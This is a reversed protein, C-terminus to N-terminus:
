KEQHRYSTNSLENQRFLQILEIITPYVEAELIDKETKSFKSLVFDSETQLSRLENNTGIRLRWFSSGLHKIISELGKNGGDSGEQRVRIVGFPLDLDDHIVLLDQSADLHYYRIIKQAVEGTLNYFTHPKVFMIEEQNSTITAIDATLKHNYRWTLNWQKALNNLIEFGVNHRTQSYKEQHNGQALIIKM